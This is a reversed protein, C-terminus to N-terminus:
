APTSGASRAATAQVAGDLLPVRGVPAHPLRAATVAQRADRTAAQGWSRAVHPLRRAAVRAPAAVGVDAVAVTRPSTRAYAPQRGAM